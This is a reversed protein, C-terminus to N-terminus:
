YVKLTVAQAVLERTEETGPMVVTVLILLLHYRFQMM